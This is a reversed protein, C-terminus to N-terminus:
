RHQDVAASSHSPTSHDNQRLDQYGAQLVILYTGWSLPIFFSQLLAKEMVVDTTYKRESAPYGLLGTSAAHGSFSSPESRQETCSWRCPGWGTDGCSWAWILELTHVAWCVRDDCFIRPHLKELNLCTWVASHHHLQIFRTLSANPSFWALSFSHHTPICSLLLVVHFLM